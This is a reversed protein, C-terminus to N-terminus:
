VFNYSDQDSVRLRTHESPTRSDFVAVDFSDDGILWYAKDKRLLIQGDALDAYGGLFERFQRLNRNLNDKAVKNRGLSVVPLPPPMVIESARSHKGVCDVAVAAIRLDNMQGLDADVAVRMKREIVQVVLLDYYSRIAYM